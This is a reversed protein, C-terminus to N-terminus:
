KRLEARMAQHERMAEEVAAEGKAMVNCKTQFAMASEMFMETNHDPTAVLASTINSWPVFFDNGSFTGSIWDALTLRIGREDGAEIQGVYCRSPATDPKLCVAVLWGNELVQKM